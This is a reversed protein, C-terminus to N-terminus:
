SLIFYFIFQKTYGLYTPLFGMRNSLHSLILYMVNANCTILAKNM